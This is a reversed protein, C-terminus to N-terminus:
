GRHKKQFNYYYLFLNLKYQLFDPSCDWPLEYRFVRKLTQHFREIKGNQEPCGVTNRRHTIGNEKCFSKMTDNVFETGNDTRIKQITFPARKQVEKLFTKTYFANAKPYTQVYVWRSADDIITYIVKGEKYGYPYTTDM